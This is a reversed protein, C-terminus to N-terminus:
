MGGVPNGGARSHCDGGKAVLQCAGCRARGCEPCALRSGSPFDVWLDLAHQAASFDFRSVSWAGALGLAVRFLEQM